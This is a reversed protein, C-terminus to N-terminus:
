WNSLFDFGKPIQVKEPLLKCKEAYEDKTSDESDNETSYTLSGQRTNKSGLDSLITKQDDDSLYAFEETTTKNQILSQNGTDEMKQNSNVTMIPANGVGISSENVVQDSDGSVFISSNSVIVSLNIQSQTKYSFPFSHEDRYDGITEDHIMKLGVKQINFTNLSKKDYNYYNNKFKQCKTPKPKKKMDESIEPVANFSLINQNYRTAIEPKMMTDNLIDDQETSKLTFWVHDYAAKVESIDFAIKQAVPNLNAFYSNIQEITVM